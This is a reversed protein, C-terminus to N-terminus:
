KLFPQLVPAWREYGKQNMHLSDPKFLAGLPQGGPDLMVPRIDVFQANPRTALFRSIRRNADNMAPWFQRRSPSLKIAIYTFTTNPLKKRVHRFVDVFRACTQRATQRGTAIDNEGAYLVIQRPHYRVIVRDAFHRVDSLQSGGFGRNLVVKGPFYAPLDTWFRISSSGTFLIADAPPPTQRDRTEFTQIEKEFPTTQGIARVGTTLLIFYAIYKM